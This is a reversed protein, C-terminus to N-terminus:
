NEHERKNFDRLDTTVNINVVDIDSSINRYVDETMSEVDNDSIQEIAKGSCVKKVMPHLIRYLEPYMKEYRSNDSELADFSNRSSGSRYPFYMNTNEYLNNYTNYGGQSYPYGLVSRMYEEYVNDYM